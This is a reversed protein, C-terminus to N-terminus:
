HRLQDWIYKQFWQPPVGVLEISHDPAMEAFMTMESTSNDWFYARRAFKLAPYFNRMCAEYRSIIKNEPVDHGGDNVRQKVREVNLLPSDTSVLYLYIQYGQALADALLELKQPHSFVTEATFSLGRAIMTCRLFDAFAAVSYSNLADLPFRIERGDVTIKNQAFPEKAKADFTSALVHSSIEEASVDFDVKYSGNQELAVKIEDANIFIYTPVLEKIKPYLTSKGSGNPGVILRLRKTM